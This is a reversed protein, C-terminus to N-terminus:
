YETTKGLATVPTKAQGTRHKRSQIEMSQRALFVKVIVPPM